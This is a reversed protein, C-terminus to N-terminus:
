FYFLLKTMKTSSKFQMMTLINCHSLFIFLCKETYFFFLNLKVVNIWGCLCIFVLKWIEGWWAMWINICLKFCKFVFIHMNKGIEVPFAAPSCTRFMKLCECRSWQDSKNRVPTALPSLVPTQDWWTPWSLLLLGLGHQWYGSRRLYSCEWDGCWGGWGNIVKLHAWLGAPM